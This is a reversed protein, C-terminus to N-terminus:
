FVFCVVLCLLACVIGCCGLLVLSYWTYAVDDGGSCISEYCLSKNGLSLVAVWIQMAEGVFAVM